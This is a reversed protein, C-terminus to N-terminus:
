RRPGTSYESQERVQGGKAHVEDFCRVALMHDIGPDVGIECLLTLGKDVATEHLQQVVCYFGSNCM